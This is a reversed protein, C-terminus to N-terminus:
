LKTRAKEFAKKLESWSKEFGKKLEKWAADSSKRLEDFKVQLHERKEKLVSIEKRYTERVGESVQAMKNQYKIIESDLAKLQDTMKNLYKKRDEM